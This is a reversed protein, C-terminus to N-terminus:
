SVSIFYWPVAFQIKPPSKIQDNLRSLGLDFALSNGSGSRKQQVVPKFILFFTILYSEQHLEPSALQNELEIYKLTQDSQLDRKFNRKDLRLWRQIYWLCINM